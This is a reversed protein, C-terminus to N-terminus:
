SYSSKDRSELIRVVAEYTFFVIATNPVVRVLHAGMGGYLGHVREEAWVKRLTQLFNHYRRESRRVNQRLRTRCVEHPYCLSSATIKAAAAALMCETLELERQRHSVMVKKLHEYIVFHIATELTGAYSATLGRYFGRLGDQTYIRRIYRSPSLSKGPRTDLQIQTKVVWIPSTVTTTAIGATIASALHVPASEYPFVRNYFQKAQSYATFYLARTPIIGFLSPALGKFFALGGETQFLHRAYVIGKPILVTTMHGEVGAAVGIGAPQFGYSSRFLGQGVATQLRTKVVELPCTVATGAAGALGGAVFHTLPEVTM